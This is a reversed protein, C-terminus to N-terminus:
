SPFWEPVAIVLAICSLVFLWLVPAASKRRELVAADEGRATRCHRLRRVSRKVSWEGPWHVVANMPDLGTGVVISAGLVLGVALGGRWDGGIIEMRGAGVVTLSALSVVVALAKALETSGSRLVALVVILLLNASYATWLVAGTSSVDM